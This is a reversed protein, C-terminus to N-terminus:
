GCFDNCHCFNHSYQHRWQRLELQSLRACDWNVSGAWFGTRDLIAEKLPCTKKPKTATAAVSM